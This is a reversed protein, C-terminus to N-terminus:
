GLAASFTRVIQGGKRKATEAIAPPPPLRPEVVSSHPTDHDAIIVPTGHQTISFLLESFKTPLRICGRSAPYGPLRGAQLAIGRWIPRQM